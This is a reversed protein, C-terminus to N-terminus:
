FGSFEEGAVVIETNSAKKRAPVRPQISVWWEEITTHSVPTIRVFDIWSLIQFWVQKAFGRGILLHDISEDM